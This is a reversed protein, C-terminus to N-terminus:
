GGVLQAPRDWDGGLAKILFVSTLLRQGSLQAALREAALLAQQATIVDLYTTAGGEYRATALEFVLRASEVATRAQREASELASLSTIGDEVEQMATLVVRRYSAVTADYNARAFDVNADLRGASFLPQAVQAGIAWLTSPADVLSTLLRSEFGVLPAITISPYYAASAVGVQANAAAMAREASAVDPRRELVDSPVGLPVAPPTLERIDAALSFSPAPTGALTAVAHEFPGRQRRLVDLQTLTTDLLAQQQAVDLGSAAGLDHRTSVFALSRRQLDLSRALVDLEIDIARLNFYATALDTGLLLRTNELDAAAQEASAQAGEVTRQVRGALDFEYNVALAVFIDNQVTSFNPSGYSSLPRNASIRQRLARANLSASPWLGASTSAVVARAQALRASALALTPSQALAQAQLADLRADGFRQWWPGKPAADDPTGERWPAEVKWAPPTEVAPRVYNPGAVCGALVAALAVVLGVRAATPAGSARPRALAEIV